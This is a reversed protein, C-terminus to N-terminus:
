FTWSEFRDSHPATSTIRLGLFSHKLVFSVGALPAETILMENKLVGLM